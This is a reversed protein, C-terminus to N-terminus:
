IGGISINHIAEEISTCRTDVAGANAPVTTELTHVAEEVVPFDDVLGQVVTILADMGEPKFIDPIQEIPIKGNKLDAKTRAEAIANLLGEATYDGQGIVLNFLENWDEATIIQGPRKNATQKIYRPVWEM